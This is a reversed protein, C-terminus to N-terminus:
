PDSQLRALGETLSTGQRGLTDEAPSLDRALLDALAPPVGVGSADVRRPLRRLRTLFEGTSVVDPGALSTVVHLDGGAERQRDAVVVAAALDSAFLPAHRGQEGLEDAHAVLVDTVPDKPGYTLARRIVVSELPADALLEEVEACAALYRNGAPASVGLHSAWVLRRCGAGVAASVAVAADEVVEDPDTLPDGALHVLTHAQELAQELRGEDDLAGRALKCGARRYEAVLGSEAREPDAYVRVEGGSRVLAWVVARGPGTEAGTVLVPM